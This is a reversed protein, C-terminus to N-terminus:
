GAARGTAAAAAGAFSPWDVGEVAPIGAFGRLAVATSEGFFDAPFFRSTQVPIASVNAMRRVTRPTPMNPTPISIVKAWQLM